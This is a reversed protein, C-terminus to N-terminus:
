QIPEKVGAVDVAFDADSSAWTPVGTRVVWPACATWTGSWAETLDMSSWFCGFIDLFIWFCGFVYLIDLFIWVYGFVDLFMRFHYPCIFWSINNDWWRWCMELAWAGCWQPLQAFWDQQCRAEGSDMTGMGQPVGLHGDIPYGEWLFVAMTTLVIGYVCWGWTMVM